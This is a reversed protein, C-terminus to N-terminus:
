IILFSPNWNSLFQVWSLMLYCIRNLSFHGGSFHGWSFRRRFISGRFIAVWSFQRGSFQGEGPFLYKTFSGWTISYRSPSFKTLRLKRWDWNEHTIINTLSSISFYFLEVRTMLTFNKHLVKPFYNQHDYIKM